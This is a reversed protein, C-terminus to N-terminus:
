RLLTDLTANVFKYANDAGFKKSLRVAEDILINKPTQDLEHESLILMLINEEMVDIKKIGFLELDSKTYIREKLADNNKVTYKFINKFFIYDVKTKTFEKVFSDEIEKATNHGFSLQYMAQVMINRANVKEKYRALNKM